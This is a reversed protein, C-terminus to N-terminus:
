TKSSIPSFRQSELYKGLIMAAQELINQDHKTFASLRNSDIDIEGLVGDMGQIPVVIESRTSPFCMLYRPDKNVDPVIITEAQKAALGCIGQGIPIRMHETEGEGAYAALVLSDGKVLYVGLWDYHESIRKLVQVSRTLAEGLSKNAIEATLELLLQTDTVAQKTSPTQVTM